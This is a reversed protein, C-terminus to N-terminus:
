EENNTETREVGFNQYENEGMMEPEINSSEIEISERPKQKKNSKLM